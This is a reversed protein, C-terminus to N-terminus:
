LEKSTKKILVKANKWWQRAFPDIPSFDCEGQILTNGCLYYSFKSLTVDGQVAYKSTTVPSGTIQYNLKMGHCTIPMVIPPKGPVGQCAYPPDSLPLLVDPIFSIDHNREDTACKFGIYVTKGSVPETYAGIIDDFTSLPSVEYLTKANKEWWSVSKPEPMGSFDCAGQVLINMNNPNKFMQYAFAKLGYEVNARICWRNPVGTIIYGPEVKYCKIPSIDGWGPYAPPVPLPLPVDPIFSISNGVDKPEEYGVYVIKQSVKDIYLGTVDSPSAIYMPELIPKNTIVPMSGYPNGIEEKVAAGINMNISVAKEADHWYCHAELVLGCDADTGMATIRVENGYCVKEGGYFSFSTLPLGKKQRYYFPVTCRNFPNDFNDNDQNISSVIIPCAYASSSLPAKMSPFLFAASLNAVRLDHGYGSMEFEPNQFIKNLHINGSALDGHDGSYYFTNLFTASDDLHTIATCAINFNCDMTVSPIRGVLDAFKQNMFTFTGTGSLTALYLSYNNESGLAVVGYMNGAINVLKLSLKHLNDLTKISTTSCEFVRPINILGGASATPITMVQCTIKGTEPPASLAVIWINGLNDRCMSVAVLEYSDAPISINAVKDMILKHTSEDTVLRRIEIQVESNTSSAIAFYPYCLAVDLLCKVYNVLYSTSICDKLYFGVQLGTYPGNYSFSTPPKVICVDYDSTITGGASTIHQNNRYLNPGPFLREMMVPIGTQKVVAGNEADFPTIGFSCQGNSSPPSIPMYGYIIGDIQDIFGAYQNDATGFLISEAKALCADKDKKETKPMVTIAFSMVPKPEYTLKTYGSKTVTFGTGINKFVDLPVTQKADQVIVGEVPKIYYLAPDSLEGSLTGVSGQPLIITGTNGKIDTGTYSLATLSDKFVIKSLTPTALTCVSLCIMCMSICVIVFGNKKFMANVGRYDKISNKRM